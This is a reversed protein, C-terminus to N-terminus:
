TSEVSRSLLFQPTAFSQFEAAVRQMVDQAVDKGFQEMDKVDVVEIFQYPPSGDAGLLGSIEFVDFSSISALGRVIPLDTSKAWDLYVAKEVGPRLNFLVFIRVPQRAEKFTPGRIM